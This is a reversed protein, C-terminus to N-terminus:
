KKPRCAYLTYSKHKKKSIFEKGLEFELDLVDNECTFASSLTVGRNETM